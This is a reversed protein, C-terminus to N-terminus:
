DFDGEFSSVNSTVTGGAVKDYSKLNNYYGIPYFINGKTENEQGGFNLDALLTITQGAFDDQEYDKAMGGVIQGLAVFQDANAITLNKADKDYWTFDVKGNWVNENNSLMAIESFSTMALTVTGDTPDYTFQNAEALDAKTEVEVM